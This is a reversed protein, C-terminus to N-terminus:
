FHVSHINSVHVTVITQELNAIFVLDLYIVNGHSIITAMM